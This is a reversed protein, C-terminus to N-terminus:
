CISSGWVAAPVWPVNLFAGNWGCHQDAWFISGAAMGLMFELAAIAVDIGPVILLVAAAVAFLTVGFALGQAFCDNMYFTVGWWNWNNFRMYGYCASYRPSAAFHVSIRTNGSTRLPLPVANYAAVDARVTALDRATLVRALRPDITAVYDKVHVYPMATALWAPTTNVAVDGTRVAVPTPAAPSSALAPLSAVGGSFGLLGFAAILSSVCVRIKFTRILQAWLM